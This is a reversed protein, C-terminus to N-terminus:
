PVTYPDEVGFRTLLEREQDEMRRAAAAEEHDFGLLHLVGHITLHAWHSLESKGQEAAERVVVPACLALDGLPLFGMGEALEPPVGAGFSLVNTPRNKGRYRRNLERGEAEGVVRLSLTFLGKRDALPAEAWALFQAESPVGELAEDCSLSLELAM